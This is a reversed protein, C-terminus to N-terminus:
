NIERNPRCGSNNEGSVEERPQYGRGRQRGAREKKRRAVEVSPM